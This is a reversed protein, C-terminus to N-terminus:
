FVDQTRWCGTLSALSGSVAGIPVFFASTGKRKERGGAAVYLASAGIASGALTRLLRRNFPCASRLDLFAAGLAAGLTGGIAAGTLLSDGIRTQCAGNCNEQRIEHGAFGGLLGGFVFGASATALRVPGVEIKRQGATVSDSSIRGLLSTTDMLARTLVSDSQARATNAFCLLLISASILRIV